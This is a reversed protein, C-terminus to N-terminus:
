TKPTEVRIVIWRVPATAADVEIGTAESAYAQGAKLTEDNGDFSAHLDTLAIVLLHDKGKASFYSSSLTGGRELKHRYATVFGNTFLSTTEGISYEGMRIPRTCKAPESCVRMGAEWHQKLEVILVAATGGGSNVLRRPSGVPLFRAEGDKLNINEVKPKPLALGEGLTVIVADRGHQHVDIATTKAVQERFVRFYQNEEVLESGADAVLKEIPKRNQTAVGNRAVAQVALLLGLVLDLSRRFSMRKNLTNL